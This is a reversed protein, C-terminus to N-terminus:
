RMYHIPIFEFYLDLHLLVFWLLVYFFIYSFIQVLSPHILNSFAIAGWELVRAQFIGHISSGPLSYDMPDCLTTDSEKRGWPSCCVLRGQGEGDGLDQEFERGNPQHHWGVM